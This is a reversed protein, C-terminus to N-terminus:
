NVESSYLVSLVSFVYAQIISVSLELIILLSQSVLMLILLLFSLSSGTSSILTMLLHGAIMNASLRVSLTGSRILNSLSEVIVMFPMLVSPTGQPVLHAFMHNMNNIWGFLMFSVWLIMSFTLSMILHSSSTFIYSFMGLFNNLFIMMFLSLYLLINMQNKKNEMLIMFEKGLNLLINMYIMNWRSPIFWFIMPIYLILYFSSFWNLSFNMSSSPDFISFLNKMM